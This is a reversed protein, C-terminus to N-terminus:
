NTEFLLRQAERKRTLRRDEYFRRNIQLDADWVEVFLRGSPDIGTEILDGHKRPVAHNIPATPMPTVHLRRHPRSYGRAPTRTLM